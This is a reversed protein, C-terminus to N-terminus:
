LSPHLIFFVIFILISVITHLALSNNVYQRESVDEPRMYMPVIFPPPLILLTFLAVQFANELHLWKELVFYGFLLAVPVFIVLRVVIVPLSQKIGALNLQLSYGIILLMLPVTLSGLFEMTLLLGGVIPYGSLNGGLGLVNLGLGVLIAIIVPSQFFSQVLQGGSQVGDRKILLFALFIFWIFIEHGLDVVAIYGVKELGYASAFLSVGLMGYEFGTLLFHFYDHKLKFQRRIWGGLAFMVIMLLFLLIFIYLYATKLEMQVFALFLVSPLAFNIVISRLDDVTHESLIRRRHLQNGIFLLLLIPLVRNIIQATQNM